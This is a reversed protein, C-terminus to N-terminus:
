HSQMRSQWLAERDSLAMADSARMNAPEWLLPVDAREGQRNKAVVVHMSDQPDDKDQHMLAVIDADNEIAGSERLDMLQPKAGRRLETGRNLQALMLVPCAFDKSLAKASASVGAVQQERPIRPDAPKVLQLYDVVVLGVPGRRRTELRLRARMDPVTMTSTDVISLPWSRQVASAEALRDWERETYDGSRVRSLPVGSVMSLFRQGLEHRTMELSFFVTPVGQSAANRAVNCGFMTKGVSPRAGVVMVQGATPGGGLTADLERFGTAVAGSEGRQARDIVEDLVDGLTASGAQEEPLEVSDLSARARELAERRRGHPATAALRVIERGAHELARLAAADVVAEAHVAAYGPLSADTVLDPLLASGGDPGLSRREEPTLAGRLTVQDIPQGSGALRAFVRWVTEHAPAYFHAALLGSDRALDYAAVGGLLVSGLVRREADLNQPPAGEDSM